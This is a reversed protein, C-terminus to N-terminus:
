SACIVSLAQPLVRVTAPLDTVHDGDAFVAFPRDADIRVEAVREVSVEPNEIHKGDFVKPLSALFRLKAVEATSVVDLLGDDLEADPAIMMGGGYAKSNAM